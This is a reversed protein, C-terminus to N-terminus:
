PVSDFYGSSTSTTSLRRASGLFLNHHLINRQKRTAAPIRTVTCRLVKEVVASWSLSPIMMRVTENFRQMERRLLTMNSANQEALMQASTQCEAQLNQLCQLVCAMNLAISSASQETSQALLHTQQVRDDISRTINETRAQVEQSCNSAIRTTHDMEHIQRSIHHM